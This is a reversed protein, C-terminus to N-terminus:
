TVIPASTPSNHPLAPFLDPPKFSKPNCAVGDSIPPRKPKTATTSSTAAWGLAVTHSMPARVCAARSPNPPARGAQIARRDEGGTLLPWQCAAGLMKWTTDLGGARGTASGSTDTGPAPEVGGVLEDDRDAERAARGGVVVPRAKRGPLLEASVARASVRMQLEDDERRERGRGAAGRGSRTAAPWLLSMARPAEMAPMLRRLGAGQKTRRTRVARMPPVGVDSALVTRAADDEDVRVAGATEHPALGTRGTFTASGRPGSPSPPAETESSTGPRRGPRHDSCSGPPACRAAPPAEPPWAVFGLFMTVAPAEVLEVAARVEIVPM